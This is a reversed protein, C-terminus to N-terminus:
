IIFLDFGRLCRTQPHSMASSYQHGSSSLLPIAGHQLYLGCPLANGVVITTLVCTRYFLYILTYPQSFTFAQLQGQVMHILYSDSYDVNIVHGGAHNLTSVSESVFQALDSEVRDMWSSCSMQGVSNRYRASSCPDLEM